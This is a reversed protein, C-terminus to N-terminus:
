MPRIIRPTHSHANIIKVISEFPDDFPVSFSVEKQNTLWWAGVALRPRITWVTYDFTTVVCRLLAMSPKSKIELVHPCLFSALGKCLTYALEHANDGPRSREIM